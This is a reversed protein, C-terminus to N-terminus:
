EIVEDARAILLEPLEVKLARATVMNVTLEYAAPHQVPLTAVDAGRLICDLHDTSQRIQGALSNGFCLLMGSLCFDKAGAITTVGSRIAVEAIRERLPFTVNDGLVILAEAGRLQAAINDANFDAIGPLAIEQLKLDFSRAASRLEGLYARNGPYANSYLVAIAHLEPEVEKLFEVRRAVSEAAPVTMGTINGGPRALSEVLGVGVPDHSMGVVVPITKTAQQLAMAGSNTPTWIVDPRGNVIHKAVRALTEPRGDTFYHVVDTNQAHWGREALGEELAAVYSAVIEAPSPWLTAIRARREQADSDPSLLAMVTLSAATVGMRAVRISIM